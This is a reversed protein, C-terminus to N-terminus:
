NQTADEIKQFTFKYHDADLRVTDGDAFEGSLLKSALPNELRRQIARKLPRAGYAPDFGEEM